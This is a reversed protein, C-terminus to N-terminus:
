DDIYLDCLVSYNLSVLGYCLWQARYFRCSLMKSFVDSGFRFNCERRCGVRGCTQGFLVTCRRSALSAYCVTQLARRTQRRLFTWSM